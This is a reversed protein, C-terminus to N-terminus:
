RALLTATGDRYVRKWGLAQLAPILSYDNPLLAHTFGFEDLQTRWGPRLQTLRAYQKLFEAGYLDSRGDFFVKRTGEFRYILYGGFKDPALIRADAPLKEVEAAAAVPFQDPPFGTRAALAPTRLLAFLLLAAVPALALGSFQADISRLGNSYDLVSDIARRLAPRLDSCAALARTISANAIPLLALGVVPLGRASRMAAFTLAAALLAHPLRRQGLALAGGLIAIALTLAIQFAGEAHFNFSQFEGIRAMLEYDTLYAALHRHLQWGYPNLLSGLSCAVAALGFWRANRLESRADLNWILPRLAYGAAYIACILPALFFSAHMNAWAATFMAAIVLSRNSHLLTEAGILATLLFLWSLVHPRALWHLNTTSLMPAAFLCAILFNGELVWNWRFWLWVSAGIALAYLLTVGSLGALGYAAGTLADAGWEWAFWPQGFRTFSYPDAHPLSRTSLISEGTRIHWGADSDRFLKQYGAFLFLCYFLTVLFAVLALDPIFYHRIGAGTAGRTLAEPRGSYGGLSVSDISRM